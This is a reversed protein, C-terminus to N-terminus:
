ENLKEGKTILNNLAKEKHYNLVKKFEVLDELKEVVAFEIIINPDTINNNLVGAQLALKEKVAGSNVANYDLETKIERVIEFLRILEEDKTEVIAKIFEDKTLFIGNTTAINVLSFDNINKTKNTLIKKISEKLATIQEKEMKFDTTRM